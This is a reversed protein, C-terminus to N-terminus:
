QLSHLLATLPHKPKFGKLRKTQCRCSFGTALIQEEKHQEITEQWNQKFLKKSNSLHEIEHGYTGAMGCCGSPIIDLNLNFQKFVNLWQKTSEPLLSKETCHQLLTYKITSKNNSILNQNINISKLWESFLLINFQNNNITPQTKQDQYEDRYCLVTSADLGIMPINFHAVQSFFQSNEEVLNSFHTLFGKVHM